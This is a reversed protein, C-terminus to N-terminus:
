DIARRYFGKLGVYLLVSVSFLLVVLCIWPQIHPVGPVMAGVVFSSLALAWSQSSAALLAICSTQVLLALRFGAAFGIRDALRGNVLPGLMAGIGFLVWCRAGSVLGEGLGRAVGVALNGTLCLM